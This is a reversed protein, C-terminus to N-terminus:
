EMIRAPSTVLLQATPVDAAEVFGNLVRLDRLAAPDRRHYPRCSVTVDPTRVLGYL